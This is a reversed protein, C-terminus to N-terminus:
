DNKLIISQHMMLTQLTLYLESCSTIYDSCPRIWSKLSPPKLNSLFFFNSYLPRPAQGRPFKQNGFAKEHLILCIPYHKESLIDGFWLSVGLYPHNKRFEGRGGQIRWQVLVYSESSEEIDKDTNSDESDKEDSRSDSEWVNWYRKSIGEKPIDKNIEHVGARRKSIDKNMERVGARRKPIDKEDWSGRSKEKSYGKM